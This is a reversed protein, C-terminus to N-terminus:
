LEEIADCGEVEPDYPQLYVTKFVEEDPELQITTCGLFTFPDGRSAQVIFNANRDYEFSVRGMENTRNSFYVQPKGTENIAIIEVLINQAPISDQYDRVSITFPYDPDLNEKECSFAFAIIVASFLLVSLKKM